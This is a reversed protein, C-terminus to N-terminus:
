DYLTNKSTELQRLRVVIMFSAQVIIYSPWKDFADQPLHAVSMIFFGTIYALLLAKFPKKRSRFYSALGYLMFTAYLGLKIMLGIWGREIAISVYGSDPEEKGPILPGSSGIGGGIPHSRVWPQIRTWKEDRVQYSPDDKPFFTSRIRKVSPSHVPAFLIFLLILGGVVAGILTAKKKINVLGIFVLGLTFIAYSTRTGTYSMALLILILVSVLVIIFQTKKTHMLFVVLVLAAYASILGAESVDGLMGALRFRGAIFNLKYIVPDSHFYKYDWIPLGIHEQYMMYLSNIVILLLWFKTFNVISRFSSFLAYVVTIFMVNFSVWRFGLEFWKGFGPGSPHLGIFIAYGVDLFFAITVPGWFASWRTEKHVLEKIVLGLFVVALLLNVGIGLPISANSLGLGFILKKIFSVVFAFGLVFYLGFEMKLVSVVAISIGILLLIILIGFSEGSVYIGTATYWSFLLMVLVFCFTGVSTDTKFVDSTLTSIKTRLSM